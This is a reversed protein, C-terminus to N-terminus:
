RKRDEPCSMSEQKSSRLGCACINCGVIESLGHRGVEWGVERGFLSWNIRRPEIAWPLIITYISMKLDWERSTNRAKPLTPTLLFVNLQRSWIILPGDSIRTGYCTTYADNAYDRMPILAIDINMHLSIPVWFVGILLVHMIHVLLAVHNVHLYINILQM